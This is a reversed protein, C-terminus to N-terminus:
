DAARTGAVPRGALRTLKAVYEEAMIIAHHADTAPLLGGEGPSMAIWDAATIIDTCANRLLTELFLLIVDERDRAGMETGVFPPTEMAGM